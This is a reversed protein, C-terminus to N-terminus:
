LQQPFFYKCLELCRLFCFAVWTSHDLFPVLIQVFSVWSHKMLRLNSSSPAAEPTFEIKIKRILHRSSFVEESLLTKRDLAM